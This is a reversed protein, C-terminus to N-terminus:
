LEGGCHGCYLQDKDNLQRCYGCRRIEPIDSFDKLPKPPTETKVEPSDMLLQIGDGIITFEAEVMGFTSQSLSCSTVHGTIDFLVDDTEIMFRTAKGVISM